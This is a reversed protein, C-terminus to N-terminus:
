RGTRNRTPPSIAEVLMAEILQSLTRNGARARVRADDALSRPLTIPVRVTEDIEYANSM